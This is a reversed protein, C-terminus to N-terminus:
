QSSVPGFVGCMVDEECNATFTLLTTLDARSVAGSAVSLMLPAMDTSAPRPTRMVFVAAAAAAVLGAPIVVRSFRGLAVPWREARRQEMARATAHALQARFRDDLSVPAATEYQRLYATLTGDRAPDQDFRSLDEPIGAEEDPRM